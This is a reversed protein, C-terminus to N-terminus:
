GDPQSASALAVERRIPEVAGVEAARHVPACAGLQEQTGAMTPHVVGIAAHGASWRWTRQHAVRHPNARALLHLHQGPWKLLRHGLSSTFATMLQSSSRSPSLAFRFGIM